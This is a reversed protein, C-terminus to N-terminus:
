AELRITAFAAAPWFRSLTQTEPHALIELVQLVSLVAQGSHLSAGGGTTM